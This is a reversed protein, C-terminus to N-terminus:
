KKQIYITFDDELYGDVLKINHSNKFKQSFIKYLEKKYFTGYFGNMAKAHIPLECEETLYKDVANRIYKRLNM